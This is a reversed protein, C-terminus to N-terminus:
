ITSETDDCGQLDGEQGLRQGAWATGELAPLGLLLGFLPSDPLSKLDEAHSSPHQLYMNSRASSATPFSLIAFVLRSNHPERTMKESYLLKIIVKQVM